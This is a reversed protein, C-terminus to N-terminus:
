GGPKKLWRGRIDLWSDMAALVVIFQKLPALVLLAAYFLGLWGGRGRAAALAHVLGIGAFLLPLLPVWAWLRLGGGLAGLGFATLLLALVQVRDLRLAHFEVRFGGPNYLAAQWWRAVILCIVLTVGLILGFMGAIDSAGPATLAVTAETGKQVAQEGIGAMLEAFLKEVQALYGRGITLLGGGLVLGLLASTCLAWSWSVTLRLVGAVVTIGLLAAVPMIEGFYAVVAAPLLAWLMVFAGERVGKRLTVLGVVAAGLWFFMPLVVAMTSVLTAERRGRMVYEALARM